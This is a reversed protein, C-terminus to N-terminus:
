SQEPTCRGEIGCPNLAALRQEREKVVNALDGRGTVKLRLDAWLGYAWDVLPGIVPWKTAAYVWGMGLAEYVRRFVEVNKITSGDPLVAHIRGMATEFDIGGNETPNYNDAAVDVFDVLGRGADKKTLFNVERLCLPCDGDYLLRIRWSPATTASSSVSPVLQSSAMFRRFVGSNIRVKRNNFGAIVQVRCGLKWALSMPCTLSQQHKKRIGVRIGTLAVLLMLISFIGYLVKYFFCASSPTASYHGTHLSILIQIILQDAVETSIASSSSVSHSVRKLALLSGSLSVLAIFFFAFFGLLNHLDFNIIRANTNLRLAFGLHHRKWGTWRMMGVICVLLIIMGAIAMVALGFPGLLLERHLSYLLQITVPLEQNISQASSHTSRVLSYFWLSFGTLSSFIAM